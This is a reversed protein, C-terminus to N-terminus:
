ACRGTRMRVAAAVLAGAQLDTTHHSVEYADTFISQLRQEETGSVIIIPRRAREIAVGLELWAGRTPESPALWWLLDCSRVGEVDRSALERRIHRALAPEPTGSAIAREVDPVWNYTLKAGVSELVRQAARVRDLERSSGAIYVALTM